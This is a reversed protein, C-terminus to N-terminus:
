FNYSAFLRFNDTNFDPINSYEKNKDKVYIASILIDDNPTYEVGINQEVIHEKAGTSDNEGDFDGYAYFMSFDAISYSISGVIASADRDFTIEDLIMTDMNTFLTGGGYGSFSGKNDQKSSKNYGISLGLDYISAEVIAGYIKSEVNSNDDESQKLYQAGFDFGIDDNVALHAIADVYISKNANNDATGALLDADSAKSIGYYWASVDVYEHSYAVGGFHVGDEGADTWAGELGADAGQWRELQGAILSFGNVEYSAIYAEFTNPIMRIDDSDALPTDVIQRGIRLNLGDFAYNIYAETLETYHGDEGSLGYNRKDNNGSAFGVDHTTSFAAAANFGHFSALEYKLQGGVATAYVDPNPTNKTDLKSYMSRLQGSVKGASFMEQISKATALETSDEQASLVSTGLTLAAALVSLKITKKM